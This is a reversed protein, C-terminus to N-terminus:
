SVYTVLNVGRSYIEELTMEGSGGLDAVQLKMADLKYLSLAIEV